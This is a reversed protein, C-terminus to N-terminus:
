IKFIAQAFSRASAGGIVYENATAEIRIALNVQEELNTPFIGQRKLECVAAEGMMYPDRGVLALEALFEKTPEM